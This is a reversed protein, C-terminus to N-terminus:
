DWRDLTYSTREGDKGTVRFTLYWTGGRSLCIGCAEAEERGAVVADKAYAEMTARIEHFETKLLSPFFSAGTTYETDWCKELVFTVTQTQHSFTRRASWMSPALAVATVPHHAGAKLNWRAPTSGGHYVYCTVPNREDEFDWQVIPTADPNKATVMGLYAQKSDPVLYEIREATPLVTKSFKDWTITIPPSEIQGKAAPKAATILHSFVGKKAPSSGAKASTPRWVTKIDALKAFRRELAGEARLKAIIKEAQAINGASPAVQARQYLLPDLKAAFREKIQAFPMEARLDELLTGIMTSRVHCFGPPAAAVALWTLNERARQSKAGKRAKHLELLWKAVGVCKESQPLAGTTLLSHANRVLELPFEDLGRGLTEHDQLKEAVIQSTTKVLGPNFILAPDPTVALHSWRGTKPAGWTAEESLFVGQIPAKSVAEALARIGGGYHGQASMADWLVPATKGEPTVIVLSGFRTIFRRCTACTSQQRHEPALGELYADFLDPATTSFLSIKGDVPTTLSKFRARVSALLAEYTADSENSRPAGPDVPESM